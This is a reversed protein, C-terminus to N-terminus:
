SLSPFHHLPLQSIHVVIVSNGRVPIGDGLCADNHTYSSANMTMADINFAVERLRSIIEGTDMIM